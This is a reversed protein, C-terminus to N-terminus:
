DTLMDDSRVPRNRAIVEGTLGAGLPQRALTAAVGLGRAAVIEIQGADRDVLGVQAQSVGLLDLAADLVRELRAQLGLEAGIALAAHYLARAEGAARGAEEFLRANDIALAARGALEEALQAEDPGYRRGSPRTM